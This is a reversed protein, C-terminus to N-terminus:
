EGPSNWCVLWVGTILFSYWWRLCERATGVEAESKSRQLYQCIIQLILAGVYQSKWLNSVAMPMMGEPESEAVEGVAVVNERLVVLWLRVLSEIM